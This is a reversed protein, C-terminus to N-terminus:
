IRTYVRMSHCSVNSFHPIECPLPVRSATSCEGPGGKALATLRTVVVCVLHLSGAVLPSVRYLALVPKGFAICRLLVQILTVHYIADTMDICNSMHSHRFIDILHENGHHKLSSKNKM